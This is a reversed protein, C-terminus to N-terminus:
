KKTTSLFFSVEKDLKGNVYSQESALLGIEEGNKAPYYSKVRHIKGKIFYTESKLSGEGNNKEIPFYCKMSKPIGEEFVKRYELGRNALETVPQHFKEELEINGDKYVIISSVAGTTYYHCHKGVKKDGNKKESVGEYKLSDNRYFQQIKWLKDETRSVVEYYYASKPTTAIEGSQTYYVKQAFSSLCTSLCIVFGLLYKM